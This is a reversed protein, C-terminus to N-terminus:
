ASQLDDLCHELCDELRERIRLARIRLANIKIGLREALNKRNKIKVGTEGKYYEIIIQRNEDSLNEMCCELCEVQQEIMLREEESERIEDQSQSLHAALAIDENLALVKAQSARYEQLVHRAVGLFFAAPDNSYIEVGENLRRASRTMTEDAMDESSSCGRREFFSVLRLHLAKYKEGAIERDSDLFSLLKNFEDQTL